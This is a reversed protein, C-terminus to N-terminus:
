CVMSWLDVGYLKGLYTNGFLINAHRPCERHGATRKTLLSTADQLYCKYTQGEMWRGSVLDLKPLCAVKKQVMPFSSPKISSVQGNAYNYLMRAPNNERSYIDFAYEWVARWMFFVQLTEKSTEMILKGIAKVVDPYVIKIKDKDAGPPMLDPLLTHLGLIPVLEAAEDLTFM